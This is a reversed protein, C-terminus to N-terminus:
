MMMGPGMFPPGVMGPGHMPLPPGHMPPAATGMMGPVMVPPGVMGPGHVPPGVMGPGHMPAAGYHAHHQRDGVSHAYYAGPPLDKHVRLLHKAPRGIFQQYKYTGWVIHMFVLLTLTSLTYFWHREHPCDAQRAITYIADNWGYVETAKKIDNVWLECSRLLPLDYRYVVLWSLLRAFQWMNFAFIQGPKCYWAGFIGVLGFLVGTVQFFGVALRSEFAYGGTYHRYEKIFHDYDHVYQCSTIFTFIAAYLIGLRLPVCICMTDMRIHANSEELRQVEDGRPLM